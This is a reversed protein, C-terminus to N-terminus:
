KPQELLTEVRRESRSEIVFVARSAVMARAAFQFYVLVCIFSFSVFLHHNAYLYKVYWLFSDAVFM